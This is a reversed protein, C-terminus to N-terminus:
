LEVWYRSVRKGTGPSVAEGDFRGGNAEIIRASAANDTDCTILVRRLGRERAKQLTLACIVRGYGKRRESPRTGYGIHGGEIELGPTLCHRLTSNAVITRGDRVLWYTDFPVQGEALSRGRANKKARRIFRRLDRAAGAFRIKEGETGAVAYEAAMALFDERFASSPSVLELGATVPIGNAGTM